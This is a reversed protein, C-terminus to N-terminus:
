FIMMKKLQEITLWPRIKHLMRHCNSCVLALDDTKTTAGFVLESLPIIHHAEIFDQGVKGYKDLFSFECVECKLCGNRQLAQQKKQRVVKFSRERRKHLTEIIKGEPFEEQLVETDEASMSLKIKVPKSTDFFIEWINKQLRELTIIGPHSKLFSQLSYGLGHSGGKTSFPIVDSLPPAKEKNFHRLCIVERFYPWRKHVRKLVRNSFPVVLHTLRKHQKLVIIDGIGPKRPYIESKKPWHLDFIDGDNFDMYAWRGDDGVEKLWLIKKFNINEGIQKDRM